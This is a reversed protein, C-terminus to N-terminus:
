RKHARVVSSQESRAAYRRGKWEVTGTVSKWWSAILAATYLCVGPVVYKINSFPHRNRRLYAGFSAARIVFWAMCGCAVMWDFPRAIRGSLVVVLSLLVFWGVLEAILNSLSGGILAYLNKTWGEWMAGFSRYMRTRVIGVGSAFYLRSGSRKVLRALAVDELIESAIALHGGASEYVDRRLLIFQGNAAADPLKPDNVKEFRYRRSLMWFIQLILAREWWTEMEQETSYSVLAADCETADALARQMAGPLHFTDADTFLLWDGRSAAAGVWAAHNKGVWGDPLSGAVIVKLKAVRTTLETLIRPTADTSGDDVVIVEEIEPQAAVSEVTRAISAEENRAPIIASVVIHPKSRPPEFVPM